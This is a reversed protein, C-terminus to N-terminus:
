IKAACKLPYAPLGELRTGCQHMKLVEGLSARQTVIFEMLLKMGNKITRENKGGQARLAFAKDGTHPNSTPTQRISKKGVAIENGGKGMVATCQVRDINSM